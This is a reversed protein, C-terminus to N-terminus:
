TTKNQVRPGDSKGQPENVSFTSHDPVKDDLDLRCFWRYALHLEVRACGGSSAAFDLANDMM